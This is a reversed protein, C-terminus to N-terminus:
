VKSCLHTGYTSYTVIIHISSKPPFFLRPALICTSRLCNSSVLALCTDISFILGKMHYQNLFSSLLSIKKNIRGCSASAEFLFSKSSMTIFKCFSSQLSPGSDVPYILAPQNIGGVSYSLSFRQKKFRQLFFCCSSLEQLVPLFTIQNISQNKKTIIGVQLFGHHYPKRLLAFM